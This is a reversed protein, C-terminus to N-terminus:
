QHHLFEGPKIAGNATTCKVFARGTMAILHKGDMVGQQGMKIGPNVGGAAASSAPSKATTPSPAPCSNARTGPDIVMLTGPEIDHIQSDFGEVLDSGGRITLVNVIANGNVDLKQTPTTTGIGVNGLLYYANLGSLIFPSAGTASACRSSRACRPPRPCRHTRAFRPSRNCRPPRRQGASRNGGTPRPSRNRM